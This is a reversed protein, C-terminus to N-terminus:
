KGGRKRIAAVIEGADVLPNDCLRLMTERYAEAVQACAEREVEAARMEGNRAEKVLETLRRCAIRLEEPSMADYEDAIHGHGNTYGVADHAAALLEPTM